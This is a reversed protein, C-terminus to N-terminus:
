HSRLQGWTVALKGNSAVATTSVVNEGEMEFYDFNCVMSRVAWSKVLLGVKLPNMPDHKTTGVKIWKDNKKIKYYGIYSKGTKEARLYLETDGINKLSGGINGGNNRVFEINVESNGGRAIYWWNSSPVKTDDFITISTWTNATKAKADPKIVIRTELSYNGEPAEMLL